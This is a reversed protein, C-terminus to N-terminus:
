TSSPLSSLVWPSYVVSVPSVPTAWSYPSNSPFSSLPPHIEQSTLIDSLRPSPLHAEITAILCAVPQRPHAPCTRASVLPERDNKAKNPDHDRWLIATRAGQGSFWM